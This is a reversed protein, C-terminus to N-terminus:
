IQFNKLYIQTQGLPFFWLIKWKLNHTLRPTQVAIGLTGNYSLASLECFFSGVEPRIGLDYLNCKFLWVSQGMENSSAVRHWPSWLVIVRHIKPNGPQKINLILHPNSIFTNRIYKQPTKTGSNINAYLTRGIEGRNAEKLNNSLKKM